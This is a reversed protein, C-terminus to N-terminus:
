KGIPVIFSSTGPSQSRSFQHDCFYFLTDHCIFFCTICQIANFANKHKEFIEIPYLPLAHLLHHKRFGTPCAHPEDASMTGADNKIDKISKM